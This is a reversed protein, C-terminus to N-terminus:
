VPVFKIIKTKNVFNNVIKIKYRVILITSISSRLQSNCYIYMSSKFIFKFYLLKM